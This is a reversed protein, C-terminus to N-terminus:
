RGSISVSRADLRIGIPQKQNLVVSVTGRWNARELDRFAAIVAIYRTDPQLTRELMKQEGPRLQFEDRGIMEASLTERERDWLSFFDATNFAAISKLEFLRVVIPSARGKADPNVGATADITTTIITPKPPPPASACGSLLILLTSVLLLGPLRRGIFRQEALDNEESSRSGANESSPRVADLM